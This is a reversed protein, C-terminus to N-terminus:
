GNDRRRYENLIKEALKQGAMAPQSADFVVNERICYNGEEPLYMGALHITEAQLTTIVGVPVQCGGGLGKLFAREAIACIKTDRDNIASFLEYSEPEERCEVAIIGQGVAPYVLDEPLIESIIHTKGLRKLAAYALILGDWNHTHLKELRTEINGRVGVIRLDERYRLLQLKRRLSGTAIVGYQPIERLPKNQKSILVDNALDRKIYASIRLGLPLEVPLDKLSHVAFDIEKDFLSKELEKTFLGKGGIKALPTDQIYDGKTKIVKLEVNLSPYVTKLLDIVIQTQKLALSSGRSGV